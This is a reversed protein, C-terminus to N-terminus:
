NKGITRPADSSTRSAVFLTRSGLCALLKVTHQVGIPSKPAVTSEMLILLAGFLPIDQRSKDRSTVMWM